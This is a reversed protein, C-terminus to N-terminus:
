KLNNLVEDFSAAVVDAVKIVKERFVKETFAFFYDALGAQRIEYDTFGDGIVAIKKGKLNLKKALKVKGQDNSLPNEEDFGIIDGNSAFTFTNAYVNEPKIGYDVVVPTIFEKFGSSVILINETNAKLFAKNRVFSDSVIPKLRLILEELHAKNANLIAIRKELSTRFSSDGNMGSNTIDAIQQLRVVKEPHNDLSIEGLIDLTEKQIFTSDFDIIFYTDTM